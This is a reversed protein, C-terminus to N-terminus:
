SYNRIILENIEGRGSADSNIHRKAPVKEILFDKGYLDEFFTDNPNENQPDSNSLMLYAGVKDMKEFFKALRRQDSENFDEKSYSTFNSTSNIPRYPPDLYIFAGNDIYKESKEFDGQIIKASSLSDSVEKLNEEDCITPNKYKGWPVNFEGKKNQRFLGNFCTKNLFILFAAREIWAGNYEDYNFENMQENYKDRMNYYFQERDEHNLSLYKEEYDKLELLLKNLDNKVVKFGVILERNIDLLYANKLNYNRELFFFMAGGGLFPEVYNFEQNKIMDPIRDELDELLQRKGGAWKLFPKASM